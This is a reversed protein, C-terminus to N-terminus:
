ARKKQRAKKVVRKTKKRSHYNTKRSSKSSEQQAEETPATMNVAAYLSGIQKQDLEEWAGKKLRRPMRIPGFSNRVLRNVQIGQSEWIRRVERNRGEHLTVTFWLNRGEGGQAMVSDFRAIGDELEVGKLMAAIMQPTVDGYVRVAYERKIEYKPHMLRNALEGDTTALLLGTTNVDLRGVLVWRGSKIEPFDDFVTKDFEPDNRSCVTGMGKHYAIVRPLQAQLVKTSLLKGDLKINEEGSVRDGLTALKNNITIRGDAIWREIERRSGLGARALVKQLKETM